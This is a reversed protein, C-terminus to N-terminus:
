QYSNFVLVNVWLWFEGPFTKESILFSQFVDPNLIIQSFRYTSSFSNDESYRKAAFNLCKVAAM